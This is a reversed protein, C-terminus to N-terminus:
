KFSVRGAGAASVVEAVPRANENFDCKGNSRRPVIEAEHLTITATGTIGKYAGTGDLLTIPGVGNLVLSCSTSDVSTASKKVLKSINLEFSGKSLVVKNINGHDAVGLQDVGHDTIAGTFVDSDVGSIGGVEVIHVVGGSTMGATADTIVDAAATAGLTVLAAQGVFLVGLTVRTLRAKRNRRNSM